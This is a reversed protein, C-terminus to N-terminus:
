LHKICESTDTTEAAHVILSMAAVLSLILFKVESELSLLPARFLLRNRAGDVPPVRSDERTRRHWDM